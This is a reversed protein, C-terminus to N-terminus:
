SSSKVTVVTCPTMFDTSGICNGLQRAIGNNSYISYLQQPSWEVMHISIM